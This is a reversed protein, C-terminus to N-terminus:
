DRVGAQMALVAAEDSIAGSVIIFPIDLRRARLCAHAELGGFGPLQYDSLAIDWQSLDLAQELEALSKVVTHHILEFHQRLTRVMLRADIEDDEIILARLAHTGDLCLPSEGM